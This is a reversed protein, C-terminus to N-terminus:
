KHTYINIFIPLIMFMQKKSIWNSQTVDTSFEGKEQLSIKWQVFLYFFEM